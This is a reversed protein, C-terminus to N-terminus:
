EQTDSSDHHPQAELIRRVSAVQNQFAVVEEPPNNLQASLEPQTANAGFSGHLQNCGTIKLLENANTESVGCGPLIEIRGTSRDQLARLRERGLWANEAGGSTLVRLVKMEILQDLARFQDAVEDFARHFIVPLPAIQEILRSLFATDVEGRATLGGFVIGDVGTDALTTADRLLVQKEIESYVFGRDHPRLMAVIPIELQEVLLACSAPSPTLGGLALASNFEIRTAGAQAALLASDIRDVCVELDFGKPM